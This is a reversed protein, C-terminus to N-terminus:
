VMSSYGGTNQKRSTHRENRIKIKYCRKCQGLGKQEQHNENVVPYKIGQKIGKGCIDCYFDQHDYLNNSLIKNKM